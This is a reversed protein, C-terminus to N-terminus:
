KKPPKLKVWKGKVEIYVASDTKKAVSWCHDKISELDKFLKQGISNHYKWAWKSGYQYIFIDDLKYAV